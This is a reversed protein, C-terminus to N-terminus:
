LPGSGERNWRSGRAAGEKKEPARGTDPRGSGLAGREHHGSQAGGSQEGEHKRGLVRNSATDSDGRKQDRNGGELSV